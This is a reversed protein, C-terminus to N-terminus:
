LYFFSKVTVLLECKKRRQMHQGVDATPINFIWEGFHSNEAKRTMEKYSGSRVPDDLMKYHTM